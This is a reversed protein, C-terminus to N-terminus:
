GDGNRGVRHLRQVPEDHHVHPAALCSPRLGRFPLSGTGPRDVLAQELGGWDGPATGGGSGAAARALTASASISPESGAWSPLAPKRRLAKRKVVM